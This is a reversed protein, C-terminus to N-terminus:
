LTSWVSRWLVIAGYSRSIHFFRLIHFHEVHDTSKSFIIKMLVGRSSSRTQTMYANIPYFLQNQTSIEFDLPKKKLHELYWIINPFRSAHYFLSKTRASQWFFWKQANQVFIFNKTKKSRFYAIKQYRFGCFFIFIGNKDLISILM